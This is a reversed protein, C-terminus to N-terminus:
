HEKALLLAYDSIGMEALERDEDAFDAIAAFKEPDIAAGRRRNKERRPRDRFQLFAIFDAVQQLQNPNLNDLDNQLHERTLQM